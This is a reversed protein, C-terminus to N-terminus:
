PESKSADTRPPNKAPAFLPAGDLQQKAAFSLSPQNGKLPLLYDGGREVIIQASKHQTHLADASVVANTLNVGPDELLDQTVSLESDAKRGSASTMAAPAGDRQECLTIICGLVGNIDKGDIALSRPLSGNRESLWASLASSMQKPDIAGLLDNLADYGPMKLRRAPTKERVSLGIAARQKQDLRAVKRWIDKTNRAGQLLGLALLSLMASFPHRRGKPHRPDPVARFAERLSRLQPVKLPSRGGAGATQADQQAAALERACLKQRAGRALEKVWLRKPRENRVYFELKHEDGQPRQQSFGATHGLPTWNTVKYTTGAHSEPDTFSEALLPAYGHAQEWQAPLARLAAGMCQSALNPRRAAEMILFRRNQVILKLRRARTVDDWGIWADRAKLRFACACWVLVACLTEGEYVLQWLSEGATKAAGQLHEANLAGVAHAKAEDSHAVRVEMRVEDLVSATMEFSSRFM